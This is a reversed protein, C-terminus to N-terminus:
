CTDGKTKGLYTFRYPIDGKHADGVKYFPQSCIHVPPLICIRRNVCAANEWWRAGDRCACFRRDLYSLLFCLLGTRFTM